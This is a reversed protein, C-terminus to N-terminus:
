KKVEPRNQSEARKREAEIRANAAKAANEFDTSSIDLMKNWHMIPIIKTLVYAYKNSAETLAQPNGALAQSYDGGASFAVNLCYELTEIDELVGVQEVGVPDAVKEDIKIVFRDFYKELKRIEEDRTTDWVPLPYNNQLIMHISNHLRTRFKMVPRMNPEIKEMRLFLSMHTICPITFQHRIHVDGSFLDLYALSILKKLSLADM